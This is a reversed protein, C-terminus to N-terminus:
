GYCLEDLSVQPLGLKDALLRGVTTKGAGFPGILVIDYHLASDPSPPTPMTNQLLIGRISM